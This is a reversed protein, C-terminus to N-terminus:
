VMEKQLIFQMVWQNQRNKRSGANSLAEVTLNEVDNLTIKEVAEEIKGFNKTIM